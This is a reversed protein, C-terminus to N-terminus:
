VTDKKNNKLIWKTCIWAMLFSFLLMSIFLLSGISTLINGSLIVFFINIFLVIIYLICISKKRISINNESVTKRLILYLLGCSLLFIVAIICIKFINGHIFNIGCFPVWIFSLVSLRTILCSGSKSIFNENKSFMM